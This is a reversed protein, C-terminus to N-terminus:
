RTAKRPTLQYIKIGDHSLRVRQGEHQLGWSTPHLDYDANIM